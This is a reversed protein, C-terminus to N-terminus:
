KVSFTELIEPLILKAGREFMYTAHANYNQKSNKLFTAFAACAQRTRDQSWTIHSVIIVAVSTGRSSLTHLVSKPFMVRINM